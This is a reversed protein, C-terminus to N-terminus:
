DAGEALPQPIRECARGFREMAESSQKLSETLKSMAETFGSTRLTLMVAVRAFGAMVEELADHRAQDVPTAPTSVWPGESPGSVVYAIPTSWLGHRAQQNYGVVARIFRKM